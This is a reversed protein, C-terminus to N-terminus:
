KPLFERISFGVQVINLITFAFVAKNRFPFINGRFISDRLELFRTLKDIDRSSRPPGSGKALKEIDILYRERAKRIAATVSLLPLVAVLPLCLSASLSIFWIGINTELDLYGRSFVVYVATAALLSYSWMMMILFGVPRLGNCGDARLPEYDLKCRAIHSIVLSVAALVFFSWTGWFVMQSVILATYIGAYGHSSHGWWQIYRDDFTRYILLVSISLALLGCGFILWRSFAANQYARYREKWKSHDTRGKVVRLTHRIVPSTKKLVLYVPLAGLSILVAYILHTLDSGYLLVMELLAARSRTAEGALLIILPVIWYAFFVLVPIFPLRVPIRLLRRVM